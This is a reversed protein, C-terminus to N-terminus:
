EANLGLVKTADEVCENWTERNRAGAVEVNLRYFYGTYCNQFKKNIARTIM